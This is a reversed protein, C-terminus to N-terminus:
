RSDVVSTGASATVVDAEPSSGCMLTALASNCACRTALARLEEETLEHELCLRHVQLTLDLLLDALERQGAANARREAQALSAAAANLPGIKDKSM